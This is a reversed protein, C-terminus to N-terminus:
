MNVSVFIQISRYFDILISAGLPTLGNKSYYCFSISYRIMVVQSVVIRMRGFVHCLQAPYLSDFLVIEQFFVNKQREM